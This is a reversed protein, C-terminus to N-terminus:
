VVQYTRLVPGGPNDEGQSGLCSAPIRRPFQGRADSRPEWERAAGGGRGVESSAWGRECWLAQDCQDWSSRLRPFVPIPAGSPGAEWPSKSGQGWTPLALVGASGARLHPPHHPLAGFGRAQPQPSRLSCGEGSHGSCSCPSFPTRPLGGRRAEWIPLACTQVGTM